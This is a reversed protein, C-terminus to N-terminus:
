DEKTEMGRVEGREAKKKEGAGKIEVTKGTHSSLGSNLKLTDKTQKDWDILYNPCNTKLRTLPLGLNICPDGPYTTVICNITCAKNNRPLGRNITAQGGGGGGEVMNVGIRNTNEGGGNWKGTDENEM